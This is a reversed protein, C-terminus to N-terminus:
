VADIMQDSGVRDEQQVDHPLENRLFAKLFLHGADEIRRM